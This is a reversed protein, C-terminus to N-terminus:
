HEKVGAGAEFGQRQGEGGSCIYGCVESNASICEQHANETIGQSSSSLDLVSIIVYYLLLCNAMYCLCSSLILLYFTFFVLLQEM